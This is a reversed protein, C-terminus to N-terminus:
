VLLGALDNLAGDLLHTGKVPHPHATGRAWQLAANLDIADQAQVLFRGTARHLAGLYEQEEQGPTPIVLATRGLAALDMLTTYGSRSVILEARLLEGALEEGGLHPLLTVDRKREPAQQMPQGRVLLHAGPINHLQTLLREELLTRQPEPGSIVAVVRYKRQSPAYLHDMRSMTGIYRANQPLHGGHSLEGALGPADPEDMIWCADFREIQSRNLRRLAGQALPTFPFVQHTIVISPVHAARVGFRNDSIVADLRLEQQLRQFLAQEQRISRLMAPFQKAMAWAQSRGKGYRVDVGPLVAHPLEPFADRLLALPAKDALIVPRADMELLRRIIPSDRTAHGLGWDLPAIAIRAGHFM